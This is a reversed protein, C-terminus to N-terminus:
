AVAADAALVAFVAEVAVELLLRDVDVVGSSARGAPSDDGTGRSVFRPRRRPGPTSCGFRRLNLMFEPEGSLREVDQPPVNLGASYTAAAIACKGRANVLKKGARRWGKSLAAYVMPRS